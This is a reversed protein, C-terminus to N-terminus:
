FGFLFRFVGITNIVDMFNMGRQPIYVMDGSQLTINQSLDKGNMAQDAKVPISKTKGGELRVIQAGALNAKEATGGAAAIADIITMNETYEYPGPKSVLGMVLVRDKSEPVIVMDGPKLAVNAAVDGAMVRKLDIPMQTGNRVIFAKTTAAKPNVGGAAALLDSLRQGELLDYPGPHGVEGLAVIRRDTEPIFLVDGAELKVDPPKSKAIADLLDVNITEAKGRIVVAKALDARTTPGGASALLEFMGQGPRLQYDGPHGVQGLLSIHDVRLQSVTVTILPAKLFKSYMKTLEAELQATTKGAVKVEDVLPLAAHGDPKVTVTRSLDSEGYVQIDIQDGPGLVYGEPAVPSAPKTAPAAASDVALCALLVCMTLFVISYKM